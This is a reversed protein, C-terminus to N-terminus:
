TLAAQAGGGGARHAAPYEPMAMRLTGRRGQAARASMPAEGRLLQARLARAKERAEELSVTHLPGLGLKTRKGARDYQFIWSKSGGPMVQLYLGGGDAFLGARRHREIKSGTLRHIGRRAM